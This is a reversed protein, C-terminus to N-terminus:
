RFEISAGRFGAAFTNRVMPNTKLFPSKYTIEFTMDCLFDKIAKSM